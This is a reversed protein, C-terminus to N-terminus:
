TKLWSTTKKGGLKKWVRKWRARAADATQLEREIFRGAARNLDADDKNEVAIEEVTEVAVHADQHEGLIDQLNASRAAFRQAQKPKAVVESVAEAAYRVRKAKIRANHLSQPSGDAKRAATRLKRWPRAVLPILIGAAPLQAAETLKPANSAKVLRDLLMRYRTSRLAGMMRQTAQTRREELARFLPELPMELGRATAHLRASMVDLDRVEGLVRGVWRLEDTLSRLWEQDVLPQFTRLDSRIRRAAVRMQHVGEPDGLRAFPDHAILRNTARAIVAKVLAGSPDSGKVPAPDSVDPPDTARPGLARVAKPIPESPMAGAARLVAAIEELRSERGETAEIEIERFRALVREGDLLSVEDDAIEAIDGRDDFVRWRKRLTALTAVPQLSSSRVYATVLDVAEDPIADSSGPFDLEHRANVSRGTNPLKVTWVPEDREGTRFRLTVGSRALRLDPTDYYTALLDQPAAPELALGDGLGEDAPVLFSPHVAFKIETEIM